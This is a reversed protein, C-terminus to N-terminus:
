GRIRDRLERLRKAQAPSLGRKVADRAASRVLMPTTRGWTLPLRRSPVMLVSWAVPDNGDAFRLKYQQEGLGLDLIQDGRKFADEIAGLLGLMPPKLQAFREDWGGNVYLVRTGAALFLQASIPEGDIQLMRMRFRGNDLLREGVECLMPTLPEGFAVLNSDGRGQWRVGHLRVFAEVDAKLTAATSMRATGGREEFRRSLRRMQGRFNSSKGAFWDDFSRDRLSVTPCGCVLYQSMIPRIRSPWGDRLAVPWPSALPLAELAVLDPRPNAEAFAAGVAAAVDWERSPAALPSLRGFIRIDALRYDIRGRVDHDVLFPALGILRGEERVAVVRPKARPPALHRWWPVIWGPSMQPEGDAVALADWERALSDLSDLDTILEAEPV